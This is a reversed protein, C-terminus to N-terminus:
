KTPLPLGATAARQCLHCRRCYPPPPWNINVRFNRVAGVLKVMHLLRGEKLVFRVSDWVASHIMKATVPILTNEGNNLVGKVAMM